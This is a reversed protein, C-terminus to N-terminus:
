ARVQVRVVYAPLEQGSITATTPRADLPQISFVGAPEPGKLANAVDRVLRALEAQAEKDSNRATIITIPYEWTAWCFGAEPDAWDIAPQGIIAVPPRSADAVYAMVRLGQIDALAASLVLSVDLTTADTVAM